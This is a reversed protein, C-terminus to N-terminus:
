CWCTAARTSPASRPPSRRRAARATPTTSSSRPAPWTSAARAGRRRRRRDRRDLQDFRCARAVGVVHGLLTGDGYPLLQKPRGSGAALRRRRARARHRLPDTPSSPMSTSRRSSRGQLGRLLLLGDRGRARAVAHGRVAAVTMGCIPDVATAAAGARVPAARRPARGRPAGRRDPGPDLARDRGAHARRHRPGAPVDIRALLEEPVGDGRLEGLVGDGRKRSAVLGVYPVGPRWAAACRTCSTAGTRRSWSRSTAPARSSRRRGDSTRRRRAGARRRAAPGRRRDADRGGRARAAGAAGARPLGRDGRGVPVPEPGDRRGGRSRPRPRRGDEAFPCSGCCCRRAARADGAARLRARQARRVRRRRLGRDDGDASCSRSTAPRAREDAAARARGDGDRVADGQAALEQARRSMAATMMAAARAAGADGGVGAGPHLAHRHPRRRADRAARRHGRQRDGAALRREAVRRRGQRRAPPAPVPTVTEGLEFDPCELATPILYDM